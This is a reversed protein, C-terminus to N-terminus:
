HFFPLIIDMDFQDANLDQAKAQYVPLEDKLGQLSVLPNTGGFIKFSVLEDLDSKSPHIESARIPNCLRALRLLNVAHARDGSFKDRFYQFGPELVSLAHRNLRNREVFKEAEPEVTEVVGEIVAHVNEWSPDDIFNFLEILKYYGVLILPGDGKLFYTASRFITGGDIVAGM